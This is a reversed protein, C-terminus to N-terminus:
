RTGRACSSSISAPAVPWTSCPRRRRALAGRDARPTAGVRRAYDKFSYVADYLHASNTFMLRHEPSRSCSSTTTRSTRSTPCPAGSRGGTRESRLPSSAAGSSRAGRNNGQFGIEWDGATAPSSSRSWWTGSARVARPAFSSSTAWRAAARGLARRRVRVRGPCRSALDSVRRRRGPELPVDGAPGAQLPGGSEAVDRPGRVHRPLLAALAARRGARGGRDSPRLLPRREFTVVLRTILGDRASLLMRGARVGDAAWAYDAM